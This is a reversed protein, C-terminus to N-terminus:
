LEGIRDEHREQIHVAYRFQQADRREGAIVPPVPGAKLIPIIEAIRTEGDAFANAGIRLGPTDIKRVASDKEQCVKTIEAIDEIRDGEEIAEVAPIRERDDKGRDIVREALHVIIPHSWPRLNLFRKVDRREDSHVAGVPKRKAM